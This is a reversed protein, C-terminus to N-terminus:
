KAKHGGIEIDGRRKKQNNIECINWSPIIANGSKLTQKRREIYEFWFIWLQQSWKILKKLFSNKWNGWRDCRRYSSKSGGQVGNLIKKQIHQTNTIYAVCANMAEDSERVLLGRGRRVFHNMNSCRFLTLQKHKCICKANVNTM